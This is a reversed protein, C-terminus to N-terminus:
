SKRLVGHGAHNLKEGAGDDNLNLFKVNGLGGQYVGYEDNPNASAIRWFAGRLATRKANPWAFYAIRRAMDDNGAVNFQEARRLQRVTPSNAQQAVLLAAMSAFAAMSDSDQRVAFHPFTMEM